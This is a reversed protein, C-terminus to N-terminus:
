RCILAGVASYRFRPCNSPLERLIQRQNASRAVFRCRIQVSHLEIRNSVIFPHNRPEFEMHSSSTNSQLLISDFTEAM